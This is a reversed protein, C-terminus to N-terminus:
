ILYSMLTFRIYNYRSCQSLYLLLPKALDSKLPDCDFTAYLAAIFGNCSSILDNLHELILLLEEYTFVLSSQFAPSVVNILSNSSKNSSITEKMQTIQSASVALPILMNNINMATGDATLEGFYIGRCGDYEVLCCLLQHLAKLYVQTVFNEVLVRLVPLLSVCLLSFTSLIYQLVVPPFAHSNILLILARSLDDRILWTLAPSLVCIQQIISVNGSSRIMLQIAKLALLIEAIVNSGQLVNGSIEHDNHVINSDATSDGLCILGISLGVSIEVPAEKPNANNGNQVKKTITSYKELLTVFYRLIRYACSVNFPMNVSPDSNPMVSLSKSSSRYEELSENSFVCKVASMITKESLQILIAKSGGNLGNGLYIHKYYIM